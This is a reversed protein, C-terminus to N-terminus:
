NRAREPTANAFNLPRGPGQAIGPAPGASRMKSAPQDAHAPIPTTLALVGALALGFVRM